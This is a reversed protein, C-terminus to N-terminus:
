KCGKSFCRRSISCHPYSPLLLLPLPLSLDTVVGLCQNLKFLCYSPGRCQEQTGWTLEVGSSIVAQICHAACLSCLDRRRLRGGLAVIRSLLCLAARGVGGILPDPTCSAAGTWGLWMWPSPVQCPSGRMRNLVSLVDLALLCPYNSWVLGHRTLLWRWGSHGYTLGVLPIERVETKGLIVPM